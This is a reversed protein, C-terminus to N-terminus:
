KPENTKSSKQKAMCQTWSRLTRHFAQANRDQAMGFHRSRLLTLNELQTSAALHAAGPLKAHHIASAWMWFDLYEFRSRQWLASLLMRVFENEFTDQPQFREILDESLRTYLKSNEDAHLLHFNRNARRM